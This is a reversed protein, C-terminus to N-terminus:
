SRSRRKEPSLRQKGISEDLLRTYASSSVSLYESPQSSCHHFSLLTILTYTRPISTQRIPNLSSVFATTNAKQIYIFQKEKNDDTIHCRKFNSICTEIRSPINTRFSVNFFLKDTLSKKQIADFAFIQCQLRIM